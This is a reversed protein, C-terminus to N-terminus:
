GIKSADRDSIPGDASRRTIQAGLGRLKEEFNEYGRDIYKLNYIETVGHAILGAIVLAAGARLDTASVPAGTLYPCGEVTAVKGDVSVNAGMRNLEGVDKFRNDWVSESVISTGEAIALLTTIQPQM